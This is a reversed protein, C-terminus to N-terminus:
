RRPLSLARDAACLMMLAPKEAEELMSAYACSSLDANRFNSSARVLIWCAKHCGRRDCSKLFSRIGDSAPVRPFLSNNM